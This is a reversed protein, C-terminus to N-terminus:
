TWIVGTKVGVVSGDVARGVIYTPHNADVGPAGDKGIILVRLDKLGRLLDIAEKAEPTSGNSEELEDLFGAEPARYREVAGADKTIDHRFGRALAEGTPMRSFPGPLLVPELPEGGESGLLGDLYLSPTLATLLANM